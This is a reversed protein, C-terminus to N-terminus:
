VVSSPVCNKTLFLNHCCSILLRHLLHLMDTVSVYSGQMHSPIKGPLCICMTLCQIRHLPQGTTLAEAVFACIPSLVQLSITKTTQVSDTAAM